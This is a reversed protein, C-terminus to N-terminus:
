FFFGDLAVQRHLGSGLSGLIDLSVMLWSQGSRGWAAHLLGTLEALASYGQPLASLVRLRNCTGPM